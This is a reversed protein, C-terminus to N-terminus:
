ICELFSFPTLFRYIKFSICGTSVSLGQFSPSGNKVKRVEKKGKHIDNECNCNKKFYFSLFSSLSFSFGMTSVPWPQPASPHNPLPVFAQQLSASPFACSHTVGETNWHCCISSNHGPVLTRGPFKGPFLFVQPSCLFPLGAPRLAFCTPFLFLLFGM